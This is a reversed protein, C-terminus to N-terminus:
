KGATVVVERGPRRATVGEDYMAECVTAPMSYTGRYSATLIIFFKKTEGPTLSFYTYVRDDRFDRYDYGSEKFPLGAEFLRTNQIEWGSPVMKTLALNRIQRFTTNTVSVTMMFSTGQQLSSVDVPKQEMDMYEVKMGLNNETVTMDAAVPVGQETFTVFVPKESENEIILRNSAVPSLNRMIGGEEATLKETKGNFDFSVKLPKSNDGKMKKSFNMYAFLGWATTQTSYWSDNSLSAAVEKLLELAEDTNGITTLTYLIISQDRLASGYYYSRYEEETKLNRVDILGQAVEPRGTTAYAAALFWRALSPLDAVERMRNMAGKDPAGALAMTFLRYAQDNATYRYQPQYRWASATARQYATWKNLFGSPLTYGAKQAELAFHGAYSTVWDDPYSGGPWLTLAGSAVQRSALSRLAEQVNNRVVSRDPLNAGLLDPLYVQPFAASTIQETCGHPYSTLWGLRRSLNVSPLSFVEVSASSTGAIGFPTFSKEYKQGPSLTRTESRREPPNPTRVQVEMDYAASEGGGDARVNIVAKGPQQATTFFLELDQDGPETFQVSGASQTFSVMENGTATVNVERIEKKQTFVTVPLAVRDGPSLVRPATALIMLPDSVVVSKEASGFTNGEGAATVM